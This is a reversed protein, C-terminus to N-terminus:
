YCWHRISLVWVLIAYFHALWWTTSSRVVNYSRASLQFWVGELTTSFSRKIERQAALHQCAEPKGPHQGICTELESGALIPSEKLNEIVYVDQKTYPLVTPCVSLRQLHDGYPRPTHWRRAMMVIGNRWTENLTLPFLSGQAFEGAPQCPLKAQHLLITFASQDYNHNDRGAGPPNICSPDLSCTVLPELVQQHPAGGKVYGQIGGACFQVDNHEDTQEVALRNFMGPHTKRGVFNSQRVSFFKDRWLLRKIITLPQRLELGADLYVVFNHTRLAQEILLAKWAYNYIHRVHPPQGSFDFAVLKVHAWCAVILAQESTLGLDFILIRQGPEWFHVSGVFNELRDFYNRSAATVVLFEKLPIHTHASPGTLQTHLIAPMRSAALWGPWIMLTVAAAAYCLFMLALLFPWRFRTLRQVVSQGWPLAATKLSALDSGIAQWLMPYRRLWLLMVALCTVLLVRKGYYWFGERQFYQYDDPHPDGDIAALWAGTDTQVAHIHHLRHANWQDRQPRITQVLTEAYDTTSTVDLRLIHVMEGYFHRCDQAFRYLYNSEVVLPGGSRGLQRSTGVVPNRPHPVWDSLLDEATFLYLAYDATTLIWWKDQFWAASTDVFPQGTLVTRNLQWGLPFTNSTYIRISNTRHTEPIMLFRSHQPSFVVFPYSLHFPEALATGTHEWTVGEDTSRAVGIEGTVRVLNKMEYFLFWTDSALRGSGLVLFPDAVFSVNVSHVTACTVVPNHIAAEPSPAFQLDTISRGTVLGIQWSAEYDWGCRQPASTKPPAGLGPLVHRSLLGFPPHVVLDVVLLVLTTTLVLFRRYVVMRM